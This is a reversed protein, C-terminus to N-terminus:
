IYGGQNQHPHWGAGKYEKAGSKVKITEYSKHGHGGRNMYRGANTATDGKTEFKDGRKRTRMLDGKFNTKWKDRGILIKTRMWKDGWKQGQKEGNNSAQHAPNSSKPTHAQQRFQKITVQTVQKNVGSRPLPRGFWTWFIQWVKKKGRGHPTPHILVM